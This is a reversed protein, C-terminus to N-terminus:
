KRTWRLHFRVRDGAGQGHVNAIHIHEPMGKPQANRQLKERLRQWSVRWRNKTANQFTCKSLTEDHFGQSQDVTRLLLSHIPHFDCEFPGRQWLFDGSISRFQRMSRYLGCFNCIGHREGCVLNLMQVFLRYLDVTCRTMLLESRNLVETGKKRSGLKSASMSGNAVQGGWGFTHSYSRMLASRSTSYYPSRWSDCM